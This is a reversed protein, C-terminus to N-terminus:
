KNERIAGPLDDLTLDDIEIYELGDPNSSVDRNKNNRTSQGGKKGKESTKTVENKKSVKRPM